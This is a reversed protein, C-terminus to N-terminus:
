LCSSVNGQPVFAETAHDWVGGELAARPDNFNVRPVNSVSVAIEDPGRKRISPLHILKASNAARAAAAVNRGFSSCPVIKSKVVVNKPPM